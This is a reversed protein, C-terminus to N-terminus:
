IRDATFINIGVEGALVANLIFKGLTGLFIGKLIIIDGLHKLQIISHLTTL